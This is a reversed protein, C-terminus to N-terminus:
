EAAWWLIRGIIGAPIVGGLVERVEARAHPPAKVVIWFTFPEPEYVAVAEVGLVRWAAARISWPATPRREAMLAVRGALSVSPDVHAFHDWTGLLNDAWAKIAEMTADDM